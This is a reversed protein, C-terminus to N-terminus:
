NIIEIENLIISRKSHNLGKKLKRLSNPKIYKFEILHSKNINNCDIELPISNLNQKSLIKNNLYIDFNGDIESFYNEIKLRLYFNESCNKNSVRFIISSYNGNSALGRKEKDWGFGFNLNKSKAFNITKNLYIKKVNLNLKKIEINNLEDIFQDTIIWIDNRFYYFLDAGYLFYINRVTNLDKTLFATKKFIIKEKHLFSNILNYNNLAIKERNYRALYVIDTKGFDYNYFVKRLDNYLTSKNEFKTSRLVEVKKSLNRWFNDENRFTDQSIYNYQNGNYYKRIGSSLDVLQVLLLLSLIIIRKKETFYSFVFFIGLILILYYIPWILRGSARISSLIGLIFNNLDINLINLNGYNINHSVSLILLVLFISALEKKSFFFNKIDTFFYFITFLFFILGSIGLYSFGEHEGNNLSLGPIFISWNISGVNNFGTPNFFSNLNFNYFGYGGGLGDEPRIIFYGVLYMALLLFPYILILELIIKKYSTKKNILLFLYTILNLIILIITFYFHIFSSLVLNIGRLKTKSKSNTSEIYFSFLIIWQGMLSLHIGSRHLFVPALIFFFMGIISCYFNKTINFLILYSFLLQLYICVVIWFSFYQFNGPLFNKGLKFVFAFLPISDTFAISNGLELGYNPNYGLPLKWSDNRFFEWGIQYQSLDGLYLWNTNLPNLQNFGMLYLSALFSIILIFIHIIYNNYNKV